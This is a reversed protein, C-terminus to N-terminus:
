RLTSWWQALLRKIDPQVQEASANFTAALDHAIAAEDKNDEIGLWTLAATSNLTFLKQQGECFLIAGNDLAFLHCDAAPRMTM